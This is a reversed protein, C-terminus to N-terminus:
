LVDVNKRCTKWPSSTKKWSASQSSMVADPCFRKDIWRENIQIIAGQDAESDLENSM